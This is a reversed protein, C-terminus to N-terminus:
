APFLIKKGEYVLPTVDCSSYYKMLFEDEEDANKENDLDRIFFPYNEVSVLRFVYKESCLNEPLVVENPAKCLEADQM